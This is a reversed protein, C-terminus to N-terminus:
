HYGVLTPMVVRAQTDGSDSYEVSYMLPSGCVEGLRYDIRRAAVLRQTTLDLVEIMMDFNDRDWDPDPVKMENPEWDSDPVGSFVWLLGSEGEWIRGLLPGPPDEEYLNETWWVGGPFWAADRRVTRVLEGPSSWESLEYEWASATWFGGARSGTVVWTELDVEELEPTGFRGLEVGTEDVHVFLPDTVTNPTRHFLFTGDDLRTFPRLRAPTPFSRVFDGEHTLLQVRANAEDIVFLSDGEGVWIRLYSGLEGPGEGPRGITRVAPGPGDYVSMRGGGVTGSVVFEGSSLRGVMCGAGTADQRISTSDTLDGLVAVEELVIECDPCAVEEGIAILGPETALAPASDSQSCSPTTLLALAM